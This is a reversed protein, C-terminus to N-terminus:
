VSPEEGFEPAWYWDQCGLKIMLSGLLKPFRKSLEPSGLIVYKRLGRLLESASKAWKAKLLVEKPPGLVLVRVASAVLDSEVLM